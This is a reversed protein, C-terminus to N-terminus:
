RPTTASTPEEPGDGAGHAPEGRRVRVDRFVAMVVGGNAPIRGLIEDPVNRPHETIAARRTSSAPAEAADAPMHDPGHSWDRANLREDGPGGGSGPSAATALEDTAADAWRTTRWHTLTMYRVGRAHFHRLIPLSNAIMSGGELGILSAIRGAAFAREVEAVTTALELAEPYAGALRHVIDLQELAMALAREEPLEAPVWVSWFQGGVGGARLRPLDTHFGEVPRRLDVESIRLGVKERLAIPLDNHRRPAEALIAPLELFMIARKM